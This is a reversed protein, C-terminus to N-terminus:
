TMGNQDLFVLSLIKLLDKFFNLFIHSIKAISILLANKGLEKQILWRSKTLM